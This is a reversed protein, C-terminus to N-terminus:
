SPVLRARKGTFDTEDWSAPRTEGSLYMAIQDRFHRSTPDGSQGPPVVARGAGPLGAIMIARLSPAVRVSFDGRVDFEGM